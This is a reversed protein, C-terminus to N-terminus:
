FRTSRSQISPGPESENRDCCGPTNGRSRFEVAGPPPQRCRARDGHLEGGVVEAVLASGVVPSLHDLAGVDVDDVDRSGVGHMLLQRRGGRCGALVDEALLRDADLGPGRGGDLGGGPGGAHDGAAAVVISPRRHDAVRLLQDVFPAETVQGVVPAAEERHVPAVAETKQRPTEQLVFGTVSGQGVDHAM